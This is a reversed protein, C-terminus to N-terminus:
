QNQHVGPTEFGINEEDEYYEIQHDEINEKIPKADASRESITHVRTKPSRGKNRPKTCFIIFIFIFCICILGFGCSAILLYPGQIYFPENQGAKDVDEDIPDTSTISLTSFFDIETENTGQTRTTTYNTM